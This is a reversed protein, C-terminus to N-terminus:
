KIRKGVAYEILTVYYDDWNQIPLEDDKCVKERLLNRVSMGWGFHYQSCWVCGNDDIEKKIIEREEPRIADLLVLKSKEIIWEPLESFRDDHYKAFEGNSMMRLSPNSKIKCM